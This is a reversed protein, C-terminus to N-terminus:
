SAQVRALLPYQVEKKLFFSAHVMSLFLTNRIWVTVRFVLWTFVFHKVGNVMVLVFWLRMQSWPRDIIM